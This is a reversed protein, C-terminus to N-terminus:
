FVIWLLLIHHQQFGPQRGAHHVAAARLLHHHKIGTWQVACCLVSLCLTIFLQPAYFIITNIGTWQAACCLVAHM